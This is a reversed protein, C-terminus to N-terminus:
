EAVGDVVFLAKEPDTPHPWVFIDEGLKSDEERISLTSM